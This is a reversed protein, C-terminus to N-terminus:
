GAVYNRRILENEIKQKLKPPCNRSEVREVLDELKTSQMYYNQVKGERSIETPKFKVPM